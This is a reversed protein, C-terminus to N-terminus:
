EFAGGIIIIDPDIEFKIPTTGDVVRCSVAYSTKKKPKDKTKGSKKPKTQEIDNPPNTVFPWPDSPNKQKITAKSDSYASVLEWQVEDELEIEVPDPSVTGKPGAKTREIHITVPVTRMRPEM